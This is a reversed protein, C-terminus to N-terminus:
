NTLFTDWDIPIPRSWAHYGSPPSNLFYLIREFSWIFANVKYFTSTENSNFAKYRFFGHSLPSLRELGGPVRPTASHTEQEYNM